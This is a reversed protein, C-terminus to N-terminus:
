RGSPSSGPGPRGVQDGPGFGPSNPAHGIAVRSADLTTHNADVIGEAFVLSGVTVDSMGASANAKAFGPMANVQIIRRFGDRDIVTITEGRVSIVQGEIHAPQIEISAATTPNSAAATIRVQEGVALAGAGAATAGVTVSTASDIADSASAGTRDVVTVSSGTVATVVGGVGPGEPGKPVEPTASRSHRAPAPARMHTIASAVGVGALSVGLAASTVIGVIRRTKSRKAQYM